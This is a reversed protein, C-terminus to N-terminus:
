LPAFWSAFLDGYRSGRLLDLGLKSQRSTGAPKARVDAGGLPERSLQRGLHGPLQFRKTEHGFPLVSIHPARHGTLKLRKNPRLLGGPQLQWYTCIHM